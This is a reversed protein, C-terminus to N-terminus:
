GREESGKWLLKVRPHPNKRRYLVGDCRRSVSCRNRRSACELGRGVGAIRDRGATRRIRHDDQKREHISREPIQLQSQYTPPRTLRNLERCAIGYSGPSARQADFSRVAARRKSRDRWRNEATGPRAGCREVSGVPTQRERSGRARKGQEPETKARNRLFIGRAQIRGTWM